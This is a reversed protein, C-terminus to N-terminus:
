PTGAAHRPGRSSATTPFAPSQCAPAWGRMRGDVMGRSPAPPRERGGREAARRKPCVRGRPRTGPEDRKLLRLAAHEAVEAGDTKGQRAAGAFEDFQREGEAEVRHVDVDEVELLLGVSEAHGMRPPQHHARPEFRPHELQRHPEGGVVLRELLVHLRQRPPQLEGLRGLGEPGHRRDVRCRVLVRELIKELEVAGAQVGDAVEQGSAPDHEAEGDGGLGLGALPLRVLEDVGVLAQEAEHGHRMLPDAGHGVGPGQVHGTFRRGHDLLRRPFPEHFHPEGVCRPAGLDPFEHMTLPEHRTFGPHDVRGGHEPM